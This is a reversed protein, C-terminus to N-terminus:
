SEIWGFCKQWQVERPRWTWNGTRNLRPFAKCIQCRPTLLVQLTWKRLQCRRILKTNGRKVGKLLQRPHYSLINSSACPKLCWATIWKFLPTKPRERRQYYHVWCIASFQIKILHKKHWPWPIDEHQISKRVSSYNRSNVLNWSLILTFHNCLEMWSCVKPVASSGLKKQVPPLINPCLWTQNQNM